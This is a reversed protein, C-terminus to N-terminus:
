ETVVNIIKPQDDKKWEKPTVEIGRESLFYVVKSRWEFEPSGPHVGRNELRELFSYINRNTSYPAGAELFIYAQQYRNMRASSAVLDENGPKDDVDAGYKLLIRIKEPIPPLHSVTSNLLSMYMDESSGDASTSTMWYNTQNPDGGYRLATELYFIDEADLTMELLSKSGYRENPNAGTKLLHEFGIKNGQVFTWGLPTCDDKGVAHIDVGKAILKDIKNTDGNAGAVALARVNKDKFLTRPTPSCGAIIPCLAIIILHTLKM